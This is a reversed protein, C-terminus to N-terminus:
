PTPSPSPPSNVKERERETGNGSVEGTGLQSARANTRITSAVLRPMAARKDVPYPPARLGLHLAGDYGDLGGGGLLEVATDTSWLFDEIEARGSLGLARFILVVNKGEALYPVDASVILPTGSFHVYLTSTSRFKKDAQVSRIELDISQGAAGHKVIHCNPRQVKQPQLVKENGNFIFYGGPDNPCEKLSEMNRAESLHCFKSRVMVPMQMLPVERYAIRNLELGSDIAFVTHEINVFVDAAYTLGRNRAEMPMM